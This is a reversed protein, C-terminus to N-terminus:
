GGVIPSPFAHVPLDRQGPIAGDRPQREVAGGLV